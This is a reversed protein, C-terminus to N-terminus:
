QARAGVADPVRVLLGWGDPDHPPPANWASPDHSDDTGYFAAYRGAPLTQTLHASATRRPAVRRARLGDLDADLGETAHGRQHDLRLRFRRGPTGRRGCLGRDRRRTLSFGSEQLQQRADRSLQRHLGGRLSTSRRSIRRREPDHRRRPDEPRAHRHDSTADWELPSGPPKEKDPKDTRGPADSPYFAYFAEIPVRRCRCREASFRRTGVAAPPRGGREPGVGGGPDASRHDLRKRGLVAASAQRGVDGQAADLTGHQDEGELGVADIQLPPASPLQFAQSKLQHPALGHLDVLSPAPLPPGVDLGRCRWPRRSSWADVDASAILQADPVGRTSSSM